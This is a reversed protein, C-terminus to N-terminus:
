VVEPAVPSASARTPVMEDVAVFEVHWDDDGNSQSASVPTWQQGCRYLETLVPLLPLREDYPSLAYDSMETPAEESNGSGACGALIGGVAVTTGYKIMARRTTETQEGADDVM